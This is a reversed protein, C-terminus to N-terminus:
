FSPTKCGRKIVAVRKLLKLKNTRAKDYYEAEGIDFARIPIVLKGVARCKYVVAELGSMYELDAKAAEKNRWFNVGPACCCRINEDLMPEHLIKGAKINTWSCIDGFYPSQLEGDRKVFVKYGNRGKPMHKEPLWILFNKAARQTCFVFFYKLVYRFKDPDLYEKRCVYFLDIKPDKYKARLLKKNAIIEDRDLVINEIPQNLEYM